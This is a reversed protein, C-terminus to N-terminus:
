VDNKEGGESGTQTQNVVPQEEDSLLGDGNMDANTVNESPECWM